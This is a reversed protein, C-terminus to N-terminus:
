FAGLHRTMTTSGTQGSGSCRVVKIIKKAYQFVGSGGGGCEAWTRGHLGSFRTISISRGLKRVCSYEGVCMSAPALLPIHYRLFAKSAVYSYSANLSRAAWWFSEEELEEKKPMRAIQRFRGHTLPASLSKRPSSSAFISPCHAATKCLLLYALLTPMIFQARGAWGCLSALSESLNEAAAINPCSSPRFDGQGVVYM